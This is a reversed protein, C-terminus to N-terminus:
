LKEIEQKVELWYSQRQEIQSEINGYHCWIGALEEIIEDVAILACQKCNFKFQNEATAKDVFIESEYMAHPMFMGVLEKAKEKPTM